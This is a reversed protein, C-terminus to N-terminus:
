QADQKNSNTICGALESELWLTIQLFAEEFHMNGPEIPIVRFLCAEDQMLIEVDVKGSAALIAASIKSYYNYFLENNNLKISWEEM